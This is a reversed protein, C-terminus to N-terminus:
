SATETNTLSDTVVIPVGNSETPITAFQLANSATVGPRTTGAAYVPARSAQLQQRSRRTMFLYTPKIQIPFLAILQSIMEDSLTKGAATGINKIRGVCKSHNLSWGIYGSLSNVWAMFAKGNSDKVQQIRWEMLQIGTNNGFIFHAGQLDNWVAYVSSTTAGVGTADVVMTADVFSQAGDFGNQDNGTGYWVQAGVEISKQRLVGAAEDSLLLAAGGEEPADAVAKDVQMQGDLYFCQSLKQDYTSSVISSGQNAARFAPGAPLAKRIRTKYTTGPIPRGMLTDFEPAWTTVEEVLGVALDTGNRKTIDLLSLFKDSM